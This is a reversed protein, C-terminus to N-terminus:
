ETGGVISALELIAIEQEEMKKKILDTESLEMDIFIPQHIKATLDIKELMKREPIEIELYQVGGQPIVYYGEMQSYIFGTNDYIM